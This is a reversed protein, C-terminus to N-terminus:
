DRERYLTTWRTYQDEYSGVPYYKEKISDKFSDWTPSVLYIASEEISKKDYYTDWWKNVHPIAKLFAFTIKVVYIYTTGLSTIDLFDMKTQIHRQLCDYYRLVLHRESDKIGLKTHLTHFIITIDPVTQDRKPRLTTWRTYQDEYSGIPYYQEKISDRFSGWIPSVVFIASEEISRQDYYTEWSDKVRPMVELLSFTINESDFFNHVLFYGEILNCWKDVDGV